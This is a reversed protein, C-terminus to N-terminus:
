LLSQNTAPNKENQLRYLKTYKLLTLRAINVAIRFGNYGDLFGLKVIYSHIFAWLPNFVVKFWNSRRGKQLLLKASLLSYSRNKTTHQEASRYAYHLIDGTLHCITSQGDMVIFEHVLNTNWHGKERNIMRLKKDPYWSGHRIWQGCYNNLRNMSYGHFAFNNQKQVQIAKCLEESLFEDADLFLIYNGSALAAAKNKQSGYGTFSQQHLLGGRHRVIDPTQDTSFSDLVVIEDAINKVSDM